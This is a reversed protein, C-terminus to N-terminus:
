HKADSADACRLAGCRYVLGSQEDSAGMLGFESGQRMDDKFCVMQSLNDNFISANKSLKGNSLTEALLVVEIRFVLLDRVIVV